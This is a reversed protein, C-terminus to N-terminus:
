RGAETLAAGRIVKTMWPRPEKVDEANPASSGCVTQFIMSNGAGSGAVMILVDSLEHFPERHLGPKIDEPLLFNSHLHM